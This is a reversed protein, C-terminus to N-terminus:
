QSLAKEIREEIENITEAVFYDHTKNAKDNLPRTMVVSRAGEIRERDSNVFYEKVAVIEAVGLLMDVNTKSDFLRIFM